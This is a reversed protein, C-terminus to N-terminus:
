YVFRDSEYDKVMQRITKKSFMNIDEPFHYTEKDDIEDYLEGTELDVFKSDICLVFTNDSPCYAMSTITNFNNFIYEEWTDCKEDHIPCPCENTKFVNKDYPYKFSKIWDEFTNFTKSENIFDKLNKM